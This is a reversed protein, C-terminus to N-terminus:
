FTEWDDQSAPSASAQALSPAPSHTLAPSSARHDAASTRKVPSVAKPKAAIQRAHSAVASVVRTVQVPQKVAVVNAAHSSMRFKNVLEALLAAQHKLSEAAAASEEVLAANQQTVQDLQGVAESVQGITTTQEIASSSIEGMFDTVKRVQSVIDDISTGANEVLRTGNDVKESSAGILSKIEKAAEASRQALTRVEGAVVAFGRGQEGARAAEVAANLALINTQFAIGDIVSIIDTVKKSSTAIDQMTDIVQRMVDGGQQAAQSASSALQTAQRATDANREVTSRIEVMSASTQQLNSSQEETRQSLDANGSAIQSSGTAISDSTSRVQSVIKSLDQQMQAVAALVSHPSAHEAGEVPSLDGSAVRLVAANLDKPEAGLAQTLSRTLMLGLGISTAFALLCVGWLMARQQVYDSQAVAAMNKSHESSLALYGDLAALLAKLEPRCDAEMKAIAEDRQGAVALNVIDASIPGYKQEVAEIAAVKSKVDASIDPGAAAASLLKLTAGVDAQAKSVMTKEEALEDAKSVLVLNRASIARQNVADRMTTALKARAIEGNVLKDLADRANSLSVTAIVALVAMLGAMLGITLLLRAKVTLNNM